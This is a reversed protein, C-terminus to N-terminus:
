SSRPGIVTELFRKRDAESAIEEALTQVLEELTRMRRTANRILVRAIPGVHEALAIEVRALWAQDWVQAAAATDMQPAAPQTATAGKLCSKLFVERERPEPIQAALKHCLEPFDAVRRAESAVLHRAIPGVARVLGSEVRVLEEPTIPTVARPVPAEVAPEVNRPLPMLATQFEAASAFRDKAEKAMARLTIDGLMRPVAPNVESPHVAAQTLHAMIVAYENEGDFPRRGTVVEYMTVGLSYLDSRGDVTEGRIQEPSMYMLSGLTFGSKTLRLERTATAIGFDTLKAQGARTVLINGPKIDRHVVGREHAYALASLVQSMYSVLTDPRVLGGQAVEDLGVGDVLELIMVIQDDVRLAARLAAINPHELSAHVRIERLFRDALEPRGELDPSVVKMAEERLTLASRVRFVKGMGGRGLVGIVEYDGVTAGVQINM